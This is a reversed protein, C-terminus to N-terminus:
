ITSISAREESKITLRTIGMALGSVLLMLLATVAASGVVVCAFAVVDSQTGFAVDAFGGVTMGLVFGIGMLVPSVAAFTVTVARAERRSYHSQLKRLMGWVVAGLTIVFIAGVIVEGRWENVQLSSLHFAAVAISVLLLFTLTLM